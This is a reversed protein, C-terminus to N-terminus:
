PMPELETVQFANEDDALEQKYDIRVQAPYGYEIDFATLIEYAGKRDADELVDFLEEITDYPTYASRDIPAGEDFPTVSVTRGGRVVIVVKRLTEPPAFASREFTYRYDTPRTREWLERYARFTPNGADGSGSGCSSLCLAAAVSAVATAGTRIMWQRVNRKM